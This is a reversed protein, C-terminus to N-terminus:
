VKSQRFLEDGCLGFTKLLAIVGVEGCSSKIHSINSKMGVILTILLSFLYQVLMRFHRLASLTVKFPM